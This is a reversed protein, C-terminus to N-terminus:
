RAVGLNQVPSIRSAERPIRAVVSWTNHPAPGVALQGGLSRVREEMGVLGYGNRASGATVGDNIVQLVVESPGISCDLHIFTAARAHKRANTVSEQAVRFTAAAVASALGSLDHDGSVAVPPHLASEALHLLSTSAVTRAIDDTTRLVGVMRQMEDIAKNATHEVDAMAKVAADPDNKAIYQAAQAQVAIASVYHAVSDHLERALVNRESLRAQEVQNIQLVRRYRMLVGVAVIVAWLTLSGIGDGIFGTRIVESVPEVAAVVGVGVYVEAAPRWRCLAYMCLAFALTMGGTTSFETNPTAVSGIALLGISGLFLYPPRVRRYPVAACAVCLVVLEWFRVGGGPEADLTEGLGLLLFLLAFLWDARRPPSGQQTVALTAQIDNSRRKVWLRRSSFFQM